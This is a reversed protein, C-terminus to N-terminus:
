KVKMHVTTETVKRNVAGRASSWVVLLTGRCGTAGVPVHMCPATDDSPAPRAMGESGPSSRSLSGTPGPPSANRAQTPGSRWGFGAMPLVPSAPAGGTRPRPPAEEPIADAARLCSGREMRSRADARKESLIERSDTFRLPIMRKKRVLLRFRAAM